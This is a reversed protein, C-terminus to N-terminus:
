VYKILEHARASMVTVFHSNATESHKTYTYEFPLAIRDSRFRM